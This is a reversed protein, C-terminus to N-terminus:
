YYNLTWDNGTVKHNIDNFFEIFEKKSETLPYLPNDPNNEEEEIEDIEKLRDIFYRYIYSNYPNNYLMQLLLYKFQTYDHKVTQEYKDKDEEKIVSLGFDIVKIDDFTNNILINKAKFDGHAIECKHIIKLVEYMKKALPLKNEDPIETILTKLSVMNPYELYLTKTADNFDLLTIILPSNTCENIKQLSKKEREYYTDEGTTYYSDRDVLIKKAVVNGNRLTAISSSGSGLITGDIKINLYRKNKIRKIKSRKLRKSSKSSKKQRVSKKNRSKPKKIKSTRQRNKKTRSNNSVQRPM